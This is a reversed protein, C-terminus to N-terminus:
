ADSGAALRPIETRDFVSEDGLGGKGPWGKVAGSKGELAVRIMSQALLDTSIMMNPLIRRM